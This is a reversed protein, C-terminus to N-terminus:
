SKTEKLKKRHFLPSFPALFAPIFGAIAKPINISQELAIFLIGCLILFPTFLATWKIVDILEPEKHAM